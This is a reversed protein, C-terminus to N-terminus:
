SAMPAVMRGIISPELQADSKHVMPTQKQCLCCELIRIFNNGNEMNVALGVRFHTHGCDCRVQGNVGMATTLTSQHIM